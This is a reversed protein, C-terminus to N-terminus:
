LPSLLINGLIFFECNNWTPAFFQLMREFTATVTSYLHENYQIQREWHALCSFYFMRHKLASHNQPLEILFFINRDNRPYFFSVPFFDDSSLPYDSRRSPPTLLFRLFIRSTQFIVGGGGGLRPGPPPVGRRSVGGGGWVRFTPPTPATTKRTNIETKPNPNPPPPRAV